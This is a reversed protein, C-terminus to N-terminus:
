DKTAFFIKEQLKKLEKDSLDLKDACFDFVDADSLAVRAVELINVEEEATFKIGNYKKM